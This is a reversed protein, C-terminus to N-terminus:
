WYRISIREKLCPPVEGDYGHVYRFYTVSNETNDNSIRTHTYERLKDEGYLSIFLKDALEKAEEDRGLLRIMLGLAEARTVNNEPYYENDFGRVLELAGARAIAEKAVKQRDM